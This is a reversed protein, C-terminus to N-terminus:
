FPVMFMFQTFDEEKPAKTLFVYEISGAFMGANFYVGQEWSELELGTNRDIIQKNEEYIKKEIEAWDKRAKLDEGKKAWEELKDGVKDCSGLATKFLPQAHAMKKEATQPDNKM